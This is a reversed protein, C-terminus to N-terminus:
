KVCAQYQKRMKNAYHNIKAQLMAAKAAAHASEKQLKKYSLYREMSLTGDELAKKVACGPESDHKCDSFRCSKTFEEVEQFSAKLGDEVDLIQM